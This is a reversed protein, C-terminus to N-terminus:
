TQLCDVLSFLFFVGHKIQAFTHIHKHARKLARATQCIKALVINMFVHSQVLHLGTFNIDCSGTTLSQQQSKLVYIQKKHKKLAGRHNVYYVYMLIYNVCQEYSAKM